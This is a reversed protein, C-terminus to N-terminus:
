NSKRKKKEIMCCIKGEKMWLSIMEAQTCVWTSSRGDHYLEGYDLQIM